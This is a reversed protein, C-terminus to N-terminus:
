SWTLSSAPDSSLSDSVLDDATYEYPMEAFQVDKVTFTTNGITFEFDKATYDRVEELMDFNEYTLDVDVTIERNTPILASILTERPANADRVVALDNSVSLEIGEVNGDMDVGGYQVSNLDKFSLPTSSDETAHSGVNDQSLDVTKETGAGDVDTYVSVTEDTYSQGVNSIQIEEVTTGTVETTNQATTSNADVSDLENGDADYLIVIGSDLTSTQVSVEDSDPTISLSTNRGSKDTYDALGYNEADAFMFSGSVEVVSEEEVSITFEDGAGGLLRRFTVDDGSENVEGTQLPQVDDATGGDQGTWYQIFGFDQPHYTIDAEFMENLAVNVRKELKNSSNYNPLYTISETEVGQDVDWSTVIGYWSWDDNDQETAFSEEELYEVPQAGAIVEKGAM